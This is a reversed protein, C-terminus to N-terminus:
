LPSVYRRFGVTTLGRKVINEFLPFYDGCARLICYDPDAAKPGFRSLKIGFNLCFRPPSEVLRM